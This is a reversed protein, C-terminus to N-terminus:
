SVSKFSNPGFVALYPYLRNILARFLLFGAFQWLPDMKSTAFPSNQPPFRTTKHSEYRSFRWFRLPDYRNKVQHNALQWDCMCADEIQRLYGKYSRSIRKQWWVMGTDISSLEKTHTYPWKEKKKEFREKIRRCASM